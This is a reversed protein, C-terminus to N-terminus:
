IRGKQRMFLLIGITILTSIGILLAVNTAFGTSPAIGRYGFDAKTYKDGDKLKVRTKNDKKGDPDYTQIMGGVDKVIVTYKGPCLNKIKYRGHKDTTDCYKKNGDYACVKIGEIGEEIDEQVGNGNSDYWIYNGISSDCDEDDDDDEKPEERTVRETQCTASCGDGNRNNGDDCEENGEKTGNGCQGGTVTGETCDSKCYTKTEGYGVTPVQGNDDGDDCEEDGEKTGNGCEECRKVDFTKVVCGTNFIRGSNENLGWAIYGITYTGPDKFNVDDHINLKDPDNSDWNYEGGPSDSSQSWHIVKSKDFCNNGMVIRHAITKAPLEIGSEGVVDIPEGACVNSSITLSPNEAGIIDLSIIGLSDISVPPRGDGVDQGNKGVWHHAFRLTNVGKWLYVRASQTTITNERECSEPDEIVAIPPVDADGTSADRDDVVMHRSPVNVGEATDIAPMGVNVFIDFEEHAQCEYKSIDNGRVIEMTLTYWGDRPINNITIEKDTNCAGRQFTCLNIPESRLDLDVIATTLSSFLNNENSQKSQFLLIMISISLTFVFMLIAVGM